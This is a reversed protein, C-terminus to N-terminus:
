DDDVTPLWDEVLSDDNFFIMKVQQNLGDEQSFFPKHMQESYAYSTPFTNRPHFDWPFFPEVNAKWQEELNGDDKLHVITGATTPWIIGQFHEEYYETRGMTKTDAKNECLPLTEGENWAVYSTHIRAEDDWWATPVNIYPLDMNEVQEKIDKTAANNKEIEELVEPGVSDKENDEEYFPSSDGRKPITQNFIINCGNFLVVNDDLLIMKSNEFDAYDINNGDLTWYEQTMNHLDLTYKWDDDEGVTPLSKRPFLINLDHNVWDILESSDDQTLHEFDIPNTLVWFITDADFCGFDELQCFVRYAVYPDRSILNLIINKKM